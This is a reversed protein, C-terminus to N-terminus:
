WSTAHQEQTFTLFHWHLPSSSRTLHKLRINNVTLSELVSFLIPIFIAVTSVYYWRDISPTQEMSVCWMSVFGRVCLFRVRREYVGWVVRARLFVSEGNAWWCVFADWLRSSPRVSPSVPWRVVLFCLTLSLFFSVCRPGTRIRTLQSLPPRTPTRTNEASLTHKRFNRHYLESLSPCPKSASSPRGTGPRDRGAESTRWRLFQRPRWNFKKSLVFNTFFPTIAHTRFTSNDRLALSSAHLM